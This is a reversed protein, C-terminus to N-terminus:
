RRRLMWKEFSEEFMVNVEACIMMIYMCFYLWLMILVITTLSGYMSFGHFYGVYISLGFSFVYWAVACLVAGPLQLRFSAKRNPIMQFLVAFFLILIGLMILGRLRLVMETAGALIPVYQLIVMKLSKGFVLLVLTIVVAIVFVITYIIAWFRLVFWNRTEELGNIVNLGNAIYQFGKAASWIAVVAAVSVIGISKNYVEEVISVFFPAVYTPLTHNIINMLVGETVPTYQLLSSFLMLFPIASLIIFFASQAAFANINDRKCKDLFMKVTGILRWIM